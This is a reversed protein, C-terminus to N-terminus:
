GEQFGKGGKDSLFASIHVPEGAASREELLHFLKRAMLSSPYTQELSGSKSAVDEATYSRKIGRFRPIEWWKKIDNIRQSFLKDEMTGMKEQTKLLQFQSSSIAGM